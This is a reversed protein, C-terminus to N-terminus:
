FLTNNGRAPHCLQPSIITVAGDHHSTRLYWWATSEVFRRSFKVIVSFAEVVGREENFAGMIVKVNLSVISLLESVHYTSMFHPFQCLSLLPHATQNDYRRLTGIKSKSVTNLHGKLM